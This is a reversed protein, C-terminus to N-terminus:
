AVLCGKVCLTMSRVQLVLGVFLGKNQNVSQNAVPLVRHIRSCNVCPFSMCHYCPLCDPFNNQSVDELSSERIWNPLSRNVLSSSISSTKPAVNTTSNPDLSQSSTNPPAAAAEGVGGQPEATIDHSSEGQEEGESDFEISTETVALLTGQWKDQFRFLLPVVTDYLKTALIGFQIKDEFCHEVATPYCIYM